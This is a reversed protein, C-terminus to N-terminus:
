FIVAPDQDSFHGNSFFRARAKQLQTYICAQVCVHVFMCWKHGKVEQKLLQLEVGHNEFITSHRIERMKLM